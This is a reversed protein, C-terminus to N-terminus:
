VRHRAELHDVVPRAKERYIEAPLKEGAGEFLRKVVQENVLDVEGFNLRVIAVILHASRGVLRPDQELDHQQRVRM